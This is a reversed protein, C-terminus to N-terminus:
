PREGRGAIEHPREVFLRPLRAYRCDFTSSTGYRKRSSRSASICSCAAWCRAAEGEPRAGLPNWETPRPEDDVLATEDEGAPRPEEVVLSSRELEDSETAGLWPSASTSSTSVRYGYQFILKAPGEAGPGGQGLGGRLGDTPRLPRVVPPDSAGNSLPV